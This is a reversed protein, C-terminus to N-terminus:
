HCLLVDCGVTDDAGFIEVFCLLVETVLVPLKVTLIRIARRQAEEVPHDEALLTQALHQWSAAWQLVARELDVHRIRVSCYHWAIRRTTVSEGQVHLEDVRVVLREPVKAHQVMVHEVAGHFGRSQDVVSVRHEIRWLKLM